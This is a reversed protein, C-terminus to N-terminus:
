PNREDREDPPPFIVMMLDDALIGIDETLADIDSPRVQHFQRPNGRRLGTEILSLSEKNNGAGWMCHVYSNRRINLRNARELLKNLEEREPPHVSATELVEKIIEIKAKVSTIGGYIAEAHYQQVGLTMQLLERLTHELVAFAAVMRGLAAAFPENKHVVSILKRRKPVRGKEKIGM